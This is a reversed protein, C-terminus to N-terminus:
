TLLESNQYINGVITWSDNPSQGYYYEVPPYKSDVTSSSIRKNNLVYSISLLNWGLVEDYNDNNFDVLAMEKTYTHELIDGEYIEKGNSDNLGTYQQLVFRSELDQLIIDPGNQNFLNAREYFFLDGTTLCLFPDRNTWDTSFEKLETDWVRFKIKRM